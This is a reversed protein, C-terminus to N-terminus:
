DMLKLLFRVFCVKLCANLEAVHILRDNGTDVCKVMSKVPPPAQAVPQPPQQQKPPPTAPPPPPPPPPPQGPAPEPITTDAPVKGIRRACHMCNFGIRGKLSDVAATLAAEPLRKSPEGLLLSLTTLPEISCAAFSLDSFRSDGLLLSLQEVKQQEAPNCLGRQGCWVLEAGPPSNIVPPPKQPLTNAAPAPAPPLSIDIKPAAPAVPLGPAPKVVPPARDTGPAEPLAAGKRQTRAATAATAEPTGVAALQEEPLAKHEIGSGNERQVVVDVFISPPLGDRRAHSRVGGVTGSRGADDNGNNKLLVVLTGAPLKGLVQRVRKDTQDPTEGKYVDPPACTEPRSPDCTGVSAGAPEVSAVAAAGALLLLALRLAMTAAAARPASPSACIVGQLSRARDSPSRLSLRAATECRRRQCQQTGSGYIKALGLDMVQYHLLLQPSRRVPPITEDEGDEVLQIRRVRTGNRAGRGGQQTRPAATKQPAIALPPRDNM